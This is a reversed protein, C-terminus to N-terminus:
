GGPREMQFTGRDQKAKYRSFFNTPTAHGDYQYVGGALRGLDASGHFEVSNTGPKADLMVTYSFHLVREYTARFRARYRDESERTILCQLADNHGTAESLWRGQWRGAIDNTPTAKRAERRWEYNFTSCGSTLVALGLIM